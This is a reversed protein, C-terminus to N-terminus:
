QAYIREHRAYVHIIAIIFEKLPGKYLIILNLDLM